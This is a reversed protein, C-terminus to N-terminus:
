FSKKPPPEIQVMRYKRDYAPYLYYKGSTELDKVDFRAFFEDRRIFFPYSTVKVSFCVTAYQGAGITLSWNVINSSVTCGNDCEIFNTAAPITDWVDTTIDNSSTNTVSLCFVITDGIYAYSVDASKSIKIGVSYEYAGIDTVGEQPRTVGEYDISTGTTGKNRLQTSSSSIHWDSGDSVFENAANISYQCGTGFGTSESEFACYQVQGTASSCYGSIDDTNGAFVTNKIVEGTGGACTSGHKYGIYNGVISCNTIKINNADNTNNDFIAAYSSGTFGTIISNELVGMNSRNAAQMNFGYGSSNGTVLCQKLTLTGNNNANNAWYFVANNTTSTSTRKVTCNIFTFNAGSNGTVSVTYGGDSYSHNITLNTVTVNWATNNDNALLTPNSDAAGDWVTGAVDSTININKAITLNETINKNIHITDGNAACAAYALALTTFHPSGGGADVYYDTSFVLAPVLLVFMLFMIAQKVRNGNVRIKKGM